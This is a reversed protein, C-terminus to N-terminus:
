LSFLSQSESVEVTELSWVREFSMLSQLEPPSKKIICVRPSQFTRLNGAQFLYFLMPQM